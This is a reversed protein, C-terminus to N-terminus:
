YFRHAECGLVQEPNEKQMEGYIYRGEENMIPYEMKVQIIRYVSEDIREQSISGDRVAQLFTDFVEEPSVPNLLIDVGAKVAMLAAEGSDWRKTIAGMGMSDTIVLGPFDMDERLIGSIIRPSLTSPLDNNTVAPVQIHATMLAPAGADIGMKFPILENEELRERDHKVSVSGLHTDAQTDGHGPFHKIVPIIGEEKFARVTLAVLQGVERPDSGFSRDGIVRNEPNSLIDAVPAFNMNFGLVSMEKGIVHAKKEAREISSIGGIERNSPLDTAHLAESSRLRNINGGEVDAAIFLPINSKEQLTDILNLTQPITDLNGGFLIVGGPRINTLRENLFSDVTLLSSSNSVDRANIFIMQGIKDEITLTEMFSLVPDEPEIAQPEMQLPQIETKEPIIEEGRDMTRCAFLLIPLILLLFLNKRM